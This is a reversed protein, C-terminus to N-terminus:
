GVVHVAVTVSVAPPVALVGVPETLLQCLSLVPVNLAVLQVRVPLPLEAVQETDKVGLWPFV